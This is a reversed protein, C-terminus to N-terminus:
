DALGTLKVIGSLESISRTDGDACDVVLEASSGPTLVAWRLDTVGTWSADAKQVAWAPQAASQPAAPVVYSRLLATAVAARAEYQAATARARATVDAKVVIALAMAVAVAILAGAILFASRTLPADAGRTGLFGDFFGSLGTAIASAGGVAGVAAVVLKSMGTAGSTMVQVSDPTGTATATEGPKQLLRLDMLLQQLPESLDEGDANYAKAPWRVTTM